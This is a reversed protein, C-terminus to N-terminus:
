EVKSNKHWISNVNRYEKINKVANETFIASVSYKYLLDLLLYKKAGGRRVIFYYYSGSEPMKIKRYDKEIASYKELAKKTVVRMRKNRFNSKTIILIDFNKDHPITHVLAVKSYSIKYKVRGGLMAISIKDDIVASKLYEENYRMIMLALIMLEIVVLYGLFFTTIQKTLWLVMPLLLFIFGMSLMFRLYSKRQKKLVKNIDM